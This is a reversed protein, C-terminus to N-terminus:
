MKSSIIKSEEDWLKTTLLSVEDNIFFTIRVTNIKQIPSPSKELLFQLKIEDVLQTLYENSQIGKKYFSLRRAFYSQLESYTCDFMLPSKTELLLRMVEIEYIYANAETNEIHASVNFAHGTEHVIAGIIDIPSEKLFSGKLAITKNLIWDEHVAGLLKYTHENVFIAPNGHVGLFDNPPNLIDIELEPISAKIGNNLGTWGIERCAEILLRIQYKTIM